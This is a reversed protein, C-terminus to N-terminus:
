IENLTSLNVCLMAKLLTMSNQDDLGIPRAGLQRMYSWMVLGSVSERHRLPEPGVWPGWSQVSLCGEWLLVLLGSQLEM